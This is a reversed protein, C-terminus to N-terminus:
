PRTQAQRLQKVAGRKTKGDLRRTQSARTPPHDAHRSAGPLRGSDAGGAQGARRRPNLAQSRQAQSFILLVGDQTM